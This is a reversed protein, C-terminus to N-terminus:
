WECDCDDFHVPERNMYHDMTDRYHKQMDGYKKEYINAVLEEYDEFLMEFKQQYLTILAPLYNKKSEADMSGARQIYVKLDDIINWCNMIAQEVDYLKDM